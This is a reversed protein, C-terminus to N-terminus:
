VTRRERRRTGFTSWGDRRSSREWGRSDAVSTKEMPLSYQRKRFRHALELGAFTIAASRFSKLGLM